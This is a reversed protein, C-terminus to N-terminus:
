MLDGFGQLLCFEKDYCGKLGFKLRREAFLLRMDVGCGCFRVVMIIAYM